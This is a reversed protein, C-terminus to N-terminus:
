MNSEHASQCHLCAESVCRDRMSAGEKSKSPFVLGAKLWTQRLHNLYEDMSRMRRSAKLPWCGRTMGGVWVGVGPVKSYKYVYVIEEDLQIDRTAFCVQSVPRPCGRHDCRLPTLMKRWKVNEDTQSDAANIFGGTLGGEVFYVFDHPQGPFDPISNLFDGETASDISGGWMNSSVAVKCHSKYHEYM